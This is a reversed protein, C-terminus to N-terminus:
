SANTYYKAVIEAADRLLLDDRMVGDESYLSEIKARLWVDFINTTAANSSSYIRKADDRSWAVGFPKYAQVESLDVFETFKLYKYNDVITDVSESYDILQIELGTHSSLSQATYLVPILSWDNRSLSCGIVRIVDAQQVYEAARGWLLNFPYNERKKDIGPPIWLTSDADVSGLNVVEIPRINKWNFSGHLKLVPIVHTPPEDSKPDHDIIYDVTTGPISTISRELFDEYNLSLFCSLTEINQLRGRLHLDALYTYLNQPIASELQATLDVIAQQYYRRVRNATEYKYQSDLVTILHEVDRDEKVIENWIQDSFDGGGKDLEEEIYTQIERTRLNRKTAHKVVGQTAGSGLLYVVKRPM